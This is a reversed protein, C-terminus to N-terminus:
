YFPDSLGQLWWCLLFALVWRFLSFFPFPFCVVFTWFPRFRILGLGLGWTRKPWTVLDAMRRREGCLHGHPPRHAGQPADGSNKPAELVWRFADRPLGYARWWANPDWPQEETGPLFLAGFIPEPRCHTTKPGGVVGLADWLVNEILWWEGWGQSQGLRTGRFCFGVFGGFCRSLWVVIFLIVLMRSAIGFGWCWFVKCIQLQKAQFVPEFGVACHKKVQDM